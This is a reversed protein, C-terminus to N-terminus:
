EPVMCVCVCMHKILPSSARNIHAWTEFAWFLQNTHMDETHWITTQNMINTNPFLVPPVHILMKDCARSCFCRHAHIWHVSMCAHFWGRLRRNGHACMCAMCIMCAYMNYMRIYIRIYLQVCVPWVSWAHMCTICVYICVHACVSWKCMCFMRVYHICVYMCVYMCTQLDRLLLDTQSHFRDAVLWGSLLHDVIAQAHPSTTVTRQRNALGQDVFILNSDYGWAYIRVYLCIYMYSTYM